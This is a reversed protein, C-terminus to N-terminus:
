QLLHQRLFLVTAAAQYDQNAKKSFGHGEDAALIYWVPTGNSRIAEVMQQSETWPVRPDNKGQVIMMPKTIKSVNKVPSITLLFDKMKPEREDGYEVRRLDRRYSETNQLFTVWNAIGVVDIGGRLRDNFHTMSALTMYGGYSGGTVLVRSKDLDPRTAIWDLLTGIDKVSDERKYGNDLSLYKKGYGASGRVNPYILAIGLENVYYNNRGIFGAQYQSEPGGHINIIVPRPGTFKAPPKYYFGSITLGDFSKWRIIEPEVFADANLGGTESYTWRELKGNDADMSYADTPSKASNLSFGLEHTGKRWQLGGILGLPLKPVTRQRGTTTDLIYLRDTGDENVTYALLKGDDSLDGTGADWKLGPHLDTMKGTTLDVRVPRRFESGESTVSYYSGGDPSYSGPMNGVGPADPSVLRTKGTAIDLEYAASTDASTYKGLLLRKHDPSWDFVRWGLTPAQFVIRATQPGSPEVVWIDSERGNRRTSNFAILKGDRSWVPNSNLSKGDTLMTSRGTQTDFLFIQYFENGGIDRSYTFYRGAVPDYRPSTVRERGFTLQTRSGGPMSVRHIQPVDAFRTTILIERRAPHWSQFSATRSEGYRALDDMVEQPIQPVAEAKIAAPPAVTNAALCAATVLVLTLKM